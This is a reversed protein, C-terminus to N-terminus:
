AVQLGLEARRACCLTQTDARALRNRGNRWIRAGSEDDRAMREAVGGQALSRSSLELGGAPWCRDGQGHSLGQLARSLSRRLDGVLHGIDDDVAPKV